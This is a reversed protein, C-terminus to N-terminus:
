LGHDVLSAVVFFLKHMMVLSDGRSVVVLSFGVCLLLSGTCGFFFFYFFYIFLNKFLCM